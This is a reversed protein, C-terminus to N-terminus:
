MVYILYYALALLIAVIVLVRITSSREIKKQEIYKRRMSGREIQPRYIQKEDPTQLSKGMEAEINKIRNQLEEKREDYFRPIFNFQKPKYTRFFRPLGM